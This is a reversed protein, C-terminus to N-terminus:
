GYTVSTLSCDFILTKVGYSNYMYDECFGGNADVPETGPTITYPGWEWVPSGTTSGTPENGCSLPMFELVTASAPISVTFYKIGNALYSSGDPQYWGSGNNVTLGYAEGTACYLSLNLTRMTDASAAHATTLALLLSATMVSGIVTASKRLRRKIM